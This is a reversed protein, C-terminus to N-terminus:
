NLCCEQGQVVWPCKPPFLEALMLSSFGPKNLSVDAPWFIVVLFFFFHFSCIYFKDTNAICPLM